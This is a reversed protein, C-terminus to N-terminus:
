VFYPRKGGSANLRRFAEEAEHLEEEV